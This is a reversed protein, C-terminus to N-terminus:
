ISNTQTAANTSNEVERSFVPNDALYSDISAILRIILWALLMTVVTHSFFHDGIAMKYGGMLWGLTIACFLVRRRSRVSDFLFYLSMLAFGGSAHGAPFCAQQENPRVDDPYTDFVCAYSISGGFEALDRACAINITAKLSRVLSPVLIM